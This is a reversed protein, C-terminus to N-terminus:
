KSSAPERSPPPESLNQAWPAASRPTSNSTAHDSNACGSLLLGVLIAMGVWTMAQIDMTSKWGSVKAWITPPSRPSIGPSILDTCGPPDDSDALWEEGLYCLGIKALMDPLARERGPLVRHPVCAAFHRRLHRIAPKQLAAISRDQFPLGAVDVRRM